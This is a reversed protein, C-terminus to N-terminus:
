ELRGLYDRDYECINGVRDAGTKDFTEGPRAAIRGTKRLEFVIQATFPHLQQLLDPRAHCASRYKPVAPM